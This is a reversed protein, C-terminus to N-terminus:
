PRHRCSDTHRLSPAVRSLHRLVTPPPPRPTRFKLDGHRANMLHSGAVLVNSCSLALPHLIHGIKTVWIPFTPNPSNLASRGVFWLAM